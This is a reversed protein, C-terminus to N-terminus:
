KVHSQWGNVYCSCKEVCSLAFFKKRFWAIFDSAVLLLYWIAVPDLRGGARLLRGPWILSLDIEFRLRESEIEISSGLGPVSGAPHGDQRPLVTWGTASRM